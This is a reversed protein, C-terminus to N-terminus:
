ADIDPEPPLVSRSPPRDSKETQGLRVNSRTGSQATQLGNIAIAKRKNPADHGPTLTKHSSAREDCEDATCRCCPRECRPRLLCPPGMTEADQGGKRAFL